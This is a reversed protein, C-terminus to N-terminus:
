NLPLPCSGLMVPGRLGSELVPSDKGFKKVNTVTRRQDAPLGADGILRNPWLNVVDIELGNGTPKVADTIEVRWPATWVVGLNKGNLRVEALNRVVGLDLFLREGPRRLLEPLDFTKHYTATGSYYKIGPEARQTWDELKGFLVSEPGGWNPDFKVTWPGTLEATATIVPFNRGPPPVTAAPQRFVVFFSQRPAFTMPLITQNKEQAFDPAEWRKGTVPDWIEPQKGKLRFLCHVQELRNQQNSIFYLDAERSRRHIYDLRTDNQQSRWTFDPPLGDGGLIETLNRGRIVRGQGVRKVLTNTGDLGGWLTDALSKVETDCAPYDTLGPAREARPGVLTLGNEVLQKLRRLLGPSLTHREPLILYGYSMGDPLFLRGDRAQMRQLLVDTNATDCDYGAPLPPRMRSKAPVFNPVDEGYFYCLDAVFLGQQLLFQCRALYRLWAHSKEWWTINRDFHTGAAEWQYGPKIDLRAQHVYFCLVYRTLGACFALDGVDKLMFPDEEWNPGMSTFAEAQCLRKGYIHAASAAQKVTDCIHYDHAWWIEGAPETKRKWFEGMDNMGLCQLADIHPWFPGGSEPHIGVGYLHSLDRLRGYYREAFLDGITRRYDWLFRNSIERSGVIKRALIPLYPWLDYGRRAQFEAGFQPTWTPEGSEYSDVHFYKLTKGVLPGAEALLKGATEAFHLDMAEANLFDIEYGQAAPSTCKTRSGLLTYGFRLVTWFGEPVQWILRGGADLNTTLDLVAQSVCDEESPLSPHEDYPADLSQGRLERNASKLEWNKIGLRAERKQQAAATNEQRKNERYALVAIDRYYDETVTPTPLRQSWQGPGQVGTEAFVIRKAAHEPKVWTGGANWGSCLNVGVEMGLRDAERLAHKFLERWVASMFVPGVPSGKGEGADFLLVGAIGQRKMEELDKTIGETTAYSDLWWWYAWPKATDPPNAFGQALTDEAGAFCVSLRTALLFLLCPELCLSSKTM